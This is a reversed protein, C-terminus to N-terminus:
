RREAQFEARGLVIGASDLDIKGYMPYSKNRTSWRQGPVAWFEVWQAPGVDPGRVWVRGEGLSVTVLITRENGWRATAILTGSTVGNGTTLGQSERFKQDALPVPIPDFTMSKGPEPNGSPVFDIRYLKVALFDHLKPHRPVEDEPRFGARGFSEPWSVHILVSERLERVHEPLPAPSSMASGQQPPVGCVLSGGRIPRDCAQPGEADRDRM